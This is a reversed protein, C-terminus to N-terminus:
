HSAPTFRSQPWRTKKICAWHRFSAAMDTIVCLNESSWAFPALFEGSTVSALHKLIVSAHEAANQNLSNQKGLIHILSSQNTLFDAPMDPLGFKGVTFTLGLAPAAQSSRAKGPWHQWRQSSGVLSQYHESRPEQLTKGKLKQESTGALVTLLCPNPDLHVADPSIWHKPACGPQLGHPNTKRSIKKKKKQSHMGSILSCHLITKM